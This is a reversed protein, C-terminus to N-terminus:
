EEVARYHSPATRKLRKQKMLSTIAPSVGEAMGITKKIAAIAVGEGSGNQLKRVAAIIRDPVTQGSTHRFPKGKKVAAAKKLANKGTVKYTGDGVRKLAGEKTLVNCATYLTQKKLGIDVGAALADRVKFRPFRAIYTMMFERGSPLSKIKGEEDEGGHKVPKFSVSGAIAKGEFITMLDYMLDANVVASVHIFKRIAM